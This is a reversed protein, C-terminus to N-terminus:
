VLTEQIEFPGIGDPTLQNPGTAVSVGYQNFRKVKAGPRIPNNCVPTVCAYARRAPGRRLKKPNNTGLRPASQEHKSESPCRGQGSSELGCITFSPTGTGPPFKFPADRGRSQLYV